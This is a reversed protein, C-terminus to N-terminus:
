RRAAVDRDVFLQRRGTRAFLVYHLNVHAARRAHITGDKQVDVECVVGLVVLETVM